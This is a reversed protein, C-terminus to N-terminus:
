HYVLRPTGDKNVVKSNKFWRKFQRTQAIDSLKRNVFEDVHHLIVKSGSRKLVNTPLQQRGVSLVSQARKKNIYVIGPEGINEKAIAEKLLENVDRDFYTAIHNTDAWGSQTNAEGYLEIPIIKGNKGNTLEVLVVVRHKSLRKERQEKTFEHHVLVAVPDSIKSMIDKVSQEGLGHFNDTPKFHGDSIAQAKTKAISYIHRQSITIPLQM